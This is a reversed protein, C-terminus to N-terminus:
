FTMLIINTREEVWRVLNDIFLNPRSIPCNKAICIIQLCKKCDFHKVPWITQCYFELYSISQKNQTEFQMWEVMALLRIVDLFWQFLKQKFHEWWSPWFTRARGNSSYSSGQTNDGDPGWFLLVQDRFLHLPDGIGFKALYQHLSSHNILRLFYSANSPASCEYQARRHGRVQMDQKLAFSPHHNFSLSNRSRSFHSSLPWIVISSLKKIFVSPLKIAIQWSFGVPPAGRRPAAHVLSVLSLSLSILLVM